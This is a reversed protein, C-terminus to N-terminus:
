DESVCPKFEAEPNCPKRGKLRFTLRTSAAADSKNVAFAIANFDDCHGATLHHKLGIKDFGDDKCFPCIMTDSM